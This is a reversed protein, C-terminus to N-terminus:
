GRSDAMVSKKRVRNSEDSKMGRDAQPPQVGPSPHSWLPDSMRIQSAYVAMGTASSTNTRRRPAGNGPMRQSNPPNM